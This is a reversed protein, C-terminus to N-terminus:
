AFMDEQRARLLHANAKDLDMIANAGIECFVRVRKMQGGRSKVTNIELTNRSVEAEAEDVEEGRERAQDDYYAQRYLMMITHADEELRGSERLDQIMPRKDTRGEVGRNLQALAVVPIRLEKAMAMLEGSIEGLELHRSDRQREPRIHGIHDIILLRLDIADHGFKTKLRRGGMRIQGITRGQKDDWQIPLKRIRAKATEFRELMHASLMRREYDSYYPNAADDPGRDERLREDYAEGAAARNLLDSTPMELSNCGAGLGRKAVNVLLTTALASKGMGPRAAIITLVGSPLGGNVRDLTKIGTEVRELHEENVDEGSVWGDAGDARSAVDIIRREHRQVVAEVDGATDLEQLTERCVQQAQRRLRRILIEEVASLAEPLTAYAAQVRGLARFTAADDWGMERLERGVSLKTVSGRKRAELIGTWLAALTEDAFDEPEPLRLAAEWFGNVALAASAVALEAVSGIQHERDAM